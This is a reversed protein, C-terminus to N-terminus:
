NEVTKEPMIAEVIVSIEAELGHPFELRVKHEGAERIPSHLRVAGDPLKTGLSKSLEDAIMRATVAGHLKGQPGARARVSVTKQDLLEVLRQANALEEEARKAARQQAAAAERFQSASASAALANPFLFNRAYGASVEVVEGAKGAKEVDELLLVKM